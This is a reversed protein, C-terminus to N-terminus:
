RQEKRKTCVKPTEGENLHFSKSTKIFPDVVNDSLFKNANDLEHLVKQRIQKHQEWDMVSKSGKDMIGQEFRKRRPDLLQWLIM